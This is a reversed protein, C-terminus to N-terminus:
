ESRDNLSDIDLLVGEDSTDVHSISLDPISLLSTLQRGLPRACVAIGARQSLVIPYGDREGVRPIVVDSGSAIAADLLTGVTEARVAPHDALHLIIREAGRGLAAILGTRASDLAGGDGPPHGPICSRPALAEFIEGVHGGATVIVRECRDAMVDFAAGVVSGHTGPPWPLALRCRDVPGSQDIALLVGFTRCDNKM